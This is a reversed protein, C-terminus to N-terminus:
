PVCAKCVEGRLQQLGRQQGRPGGFGLLLLLLLLLPQLLLV